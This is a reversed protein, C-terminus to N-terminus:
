KILKEAKIEKYERTKGHKDTKQVRHTNCLYGSFALEKMINKAKETVETENDDTILLWGIGSSAIQDAESTKTKWNSGNPKVTGQIIDSKKNNILGRDYVASATIYFNTNHLIYNVLKDNGLEKAFQKATDYDSASKKPTFRLARKLRLAGRKTAKIEAWKKLRLLNQFDAKLEPTNLEDMAQNWDHERLSQHDNGIIAGTELEALKRAKIRKRRNSKIEKARQEKLESLKM